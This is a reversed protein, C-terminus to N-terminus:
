KKLSKSDKLARVPPLKKWFDIWKEAYLDQFGLHMAAIRKNYELKDYPTRTTGPLQSYNLIDKVDWVEPKWELLDLKRTELYTLDKWFTRVLTDPSKREFFGPSNTLIVLLSEPRISTFHVGLYIGGVGPLGVTLGMGGDMKKMNGTAVSGWKGTMKHDGDSSVEAGYGMFNGKITVKKGGKEDIEVESGGGLAVKPANLQGEKKFVVTRSKGTKIGDSGIDFNWELKITKYSSIHGLMYKDRLQNIKAKISPEFTFKARFFLQGERHRAAQTPWRHAQIDWIKQSIETWAHYSTVNTLKERLEREQAPTPKLPMPFRYPEPPPGLKRIADENATKSIAKLKGVYKNLDGRYFVNYAKIVKLNRWHAKKNYAEDGVYNDLLGSGARWTVNGWSDKSSPSLVFVPLKKFNLRKRVKDIEMFSEIYKKKEDEGIILDNVGIQGEATKVSGLASTHDYIGVTYAKGNIEFLTYSGVLGTPGQSLSFKHKFGGGSDYYSMKTGQILYVNWKKGLKPNVAVRIVDELQDCLKDINPTNTSDNWGAAVVLNDIAYHTLRKQYIVQRQAARKQTSGRKKGRVRIRTVSSAANDTHIRVIRRATPIWLSEGPYILHPSGSRLKKSNKKGDPGKTRYIVRWPVGFRSGIKSM